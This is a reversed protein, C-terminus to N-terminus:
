PKNNLQANELGHGVRQLGMFQRMDTDKVIEQLKSLSMNMSETTSHLRRMRQWGKRREGETKGLMLTKELSNARQILHGFCLLKLM